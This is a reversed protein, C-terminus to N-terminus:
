KFAVVNDPVPKKATVKKCWAGIQKRHKFVDYAALGIGVPGTVGALSGVTFGVAGAVALQKLMDGATQPPRMLKSAASGGKYATYMVGGLYAYATITNM